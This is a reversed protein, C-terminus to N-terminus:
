DVKIKGQLYAEKLKKTLEPPIVEFFFELDEISVDYYKSINQMVKKSPKYAADKKTRRSKDELYKLYTHSIGIYSAAERLSVGANERIEKLM